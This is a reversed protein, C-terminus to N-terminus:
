AHSVKIHHPKENEPRQLTLILVGHEFKAAAADADVRFPLVINRVFLGYPREQKQITSRDDVPEPDRKGRLTVTDRQVTIDLEEASVGPMEAVIVAGDPNTWLNMLPFQPSPYFHLGGFLQNLDAQARRLEDFPDVNRRPVPLRTELM